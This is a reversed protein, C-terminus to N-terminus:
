IDFLFKWIINMNNNNVKRKAEILQPGPTIIIERERSQNSDGNEREEEPSLKRGTRMLKEEGM